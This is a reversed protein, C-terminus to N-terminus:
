DEHFKDKVLQALAALCAEADDGEGELQLKTGPMAALMMMEMISKGNVKEAGKRVTVLCRFRNATQVFQMAPRAHMGMRNIIEVERVPV